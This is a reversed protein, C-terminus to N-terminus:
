PWLKETLAPATPYATWGNTVDYPTVNKSNLVEVIANEESVPFKQKTLLKAIIDITQWCSTLTDLGLAGAVKGAKIDALGVVDPNWGFVTPTLSAEALASPLGDAAPDAAFVVTNTSTHARLYDVVLSPASSGFDLVSIESLTAKCTSCVKKLQTHFGAWMVPSFDLEPTGFFVVNAKSGKFIRVWDAMLQGALTVTSNSGLTVSLGYKPGNDTGIGVIPIHKREIPKLSSGFESLATGAVIVASPNLALAAAAAAQAQAPFLGCSITTFHVGLAAAAPALLKGFGACQAAGCQLFVITDSSPPKKKLKQTIPFKPAKGTYPALQKKAIALGSIHATAHAVPSASASAATVGLAGIAFSSAVVTAVFLRRRAHHMLGSM